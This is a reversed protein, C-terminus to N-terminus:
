SAGCSTGSASCCATGPRVAAFVAIPALRMVYGTVTLMVDVLADIDVRQVIANLDM